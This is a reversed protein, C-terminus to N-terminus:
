IDTKPIHLQVFDGMAWQTILFFLQFYVKNFCAIMENVHVSNPKTKSVSSPQSSTTCDSILTIGRSSGNPGATMVNSSSSHGSGVLTLLERGIQIDEVM